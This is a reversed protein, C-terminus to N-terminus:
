SVFSGTVAAKNVESTDQSDSERASTVSQVSSIILRESTKVQGPANITYILIRIVKSPERVPLSARGVERSVSLAAALSLSTYLQESYM